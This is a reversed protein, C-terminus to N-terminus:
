PNLSKRYTDLTSYHTKKWDFQRSQSFGSIIKSKRYEDSFLSKVGSAIAEPNLSEVVTLADRGIQMIPPCVYSVVPCGARMAEAVPIGFGEYSSPYILCFAQNYLQNIEDEKLFGAHRIRSKVSIPIGALEKEKLNGGGVCVLDFEVLHELAKAAASFNKYGDRNGIFLLFPRQYKDVTDLPHFKESVGNYIIDIKSEDIKPM